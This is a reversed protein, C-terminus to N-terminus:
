TRMREYLKMYDILLDKEEEDDSHLIEIIFLPLHVEASEYEKGMILYDISCHLKQCLQVQMDISMGTVGREIESIHKSTSNILDALQAQTFHQKKRLMAVRRGISQNTNEDHM